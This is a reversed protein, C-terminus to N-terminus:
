PIFLISDMCKLLFESFSSFYVPFSAASLFTSYKTLGSTTIASFPIPAGFYSMLVNSAGPDCESFPSGGIYSPISGIPIGALSM